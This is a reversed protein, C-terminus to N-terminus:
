NEIKLVFMNDKYNKYHGSTKWLKLNYINPSLVEQYGRVRYENRMFEILKNYLKTGFPYFFASGPSLPHV